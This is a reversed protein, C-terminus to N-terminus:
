QQINNVIRTLIKLVLDLMKPHVDFEWTYNTNGFDENSYLDISEHEIYFRNGNVKCSKLSYRGGPEPRYIEFFLGRKTNYIYVRNEHTGNELLINFGEKDISISVKDKYESYVPFPNENYLRIFNMIDITGNYVEKVIFHTDTGKFYADFEVTKKTDDIQLNEIKHKEGGSFEESVCINQGCKCFCEGFGIKLIDNQPDIQLMFDKAKLKKINKKAERKSPLDNTKSKLVISEGEHQTVTSKLMEITQHELQLEQQFLPKLFTQLEDDLADANITRIYEDSKFQNIVELNSHMYALMNCIDDKLCYTMINALSQIFCVTGLSGEDLKILYDMKSNCKRIQARIEKEDASYIDNRIFDVIPSISEYRQSPPLKGKLEEMQKYLVITRDMCFIVFQILQKKPLDHLLKEVQEESIQKM